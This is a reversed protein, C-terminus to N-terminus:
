PLITSEERQSDDEDSEDQEEEDEEYVIRRMVSKDFLDIVFRLVPLRFHHGELVMMVKHFVRPTHFGKARKSKISSGTLTAVEM